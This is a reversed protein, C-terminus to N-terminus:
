FRFTGVFAFGNQDFMRTELNINAQYKNNLISIGLVLGYNRSTKSDKIDVWQRELDPLVMFAVKPNSTITSYLFTAGAYPILFNTVYSIAFCLQYEELKQELSTVLPYVIKESIFYKPKQLTYFYKADISCDFHHIKLLIAKFGAAWALKRDTYIEQDIQLNTTGLIGYIDLRNFFNFTLIGSYIQMKINSSDSPTSTLNKFKEQFRGKYINNYLFSARLSVNKKNSIFIGNSYIGPDSPNGVVLAFIKTYFLFFTIFITKTM